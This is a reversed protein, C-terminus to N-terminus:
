GLRHIGHSFRPRIRAVSDVGFLCKQRFLRFQLAVPWKLVDLQFEGFRNRAQRHVPRGIVDQGLVHHLLDRPRNFAQVLVAFDAGQDQLSGLLAGRKRGAHRHFIGPGVPGELGQLRELADEIGHQINGLGDDGDHVARRDAPPALQRCQAVHDHGSGLSAECLRLNAQPYIRRQRSDDQRMGDPM